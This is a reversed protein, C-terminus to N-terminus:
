QEDGHFVTYLVEPLVIVKNAFYLMRPTFEADEHYIGPVFRLNNELLFLKRFIWFVGCHEWKADILM